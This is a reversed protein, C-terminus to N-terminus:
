RAALLFFLWGGVLLVCRVILSCRAVVFLLCCCDVCVVFLGCVVVLLWCGM